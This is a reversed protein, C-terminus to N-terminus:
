LSYFRITLLWPRRSPNYPHVDYWARSSSLVCAVNKRYDLEFNSALQWYTL